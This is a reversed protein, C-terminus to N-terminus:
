QAAVSDFLSKGGLITIQSAKQFPITLKNNAADYHYGAGEHLSAGDRKVAQVGQCYIELEGTVGLEEIHVEIRDAEPHVEINRTGQGTYYGFQSPEKRAPFVEIRLKPEWNADWNNNAKLINGRPIIAGERVYLPITGLPAAAKISAAGEYVTKRDNYDMWRGAPLYLSRSTAGEVTVPAVLIDRGYLYEDWADHLTKDNPYSFVLARMVPMGTQTAQYVYSRTYPILDHHLQTYKQAIEVFESDYDDWVTRKPGILVEMMPSMASFELWRAFLEKDPNPNSLYGGTDSGWVPFDIAGARLGTKISIALGGFTSQADGNWIATYKRATDNANRSFEFYDGRYTDNLGEAALKPLLIANLNELSHPMEGEEGRDIKYGRVGRRVYLNLEDKFWSYVEPRRLDAAPWSEDFLYGKASGEQFLNNSNRNAIWLLLYMGRDQLDRIMKDPDPFSSDFDMNGWGRDGSGYPRDLWIAAAPIHLGRLRDADQIVKEQANKAGGRLDDHEDDRWWITGLAWLPPMVPPGALSNYRNLIDSYSPGYIIDYTLQGARFSFSTESSQSFTYHGAASSEVYVGYKRSTMYFPARASSYNVDPLQRAGAFEAYAGRDDINGGYPYEWVGYYHEGHDEFGQEISQCDGGEYDLTVQIIEPKTFTLTLRAKQSTGSLLLTAQLSDAMKVVDTISAVRHDQETFAIRKSSLLAEGTSKEILTFAYPNAGIEVRLAPSELSEVQARVPAAFFALAIAAPLAFQLSKATRSL